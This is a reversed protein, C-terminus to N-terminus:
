LYSLIVVGLGLFCVCVVCVVGCVNVCVVVGYVVCLDFCVHLVYMGGYDVCVEVVSLVVFDCVGYWEDYM